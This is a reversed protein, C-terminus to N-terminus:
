EKFAGEPAVRKVHELSVNVIPAPAGDPIRDGSPSNFWITVTGTDAERTAGIVVADDPIGDLVRVVADPTGFIAGSRLQELILDDSIRVGFRQPNALRM